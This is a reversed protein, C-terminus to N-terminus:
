FLEMLPNIQELHKLIRKVIEVNWIYVSFGLLSM